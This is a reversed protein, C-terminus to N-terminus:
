MQGPTRLCRRLVGLVGERQEVALLARLGQGYVDDRQTMLAMKKTAGMASLVKYALWEAFGERVLANRLLPCNEGQWAHAYEHAMVQLMLIQPLGCQAYIVRKRGERVFLGFTRNTSAEESLGAQAVAAQLQTRDVLAFSTPVNLALGLEGQIISVARDFLSKAKDHDYVATQHCVGCIHRGDAIQQGGRGVPAGCVDCRPRDRFCTECYIERRGDLQLYRGSIPAGCSACFLQGPREDQQAKVPSRLAIGCYSCFRAGRRVARQCHPCARRGNEPCSEPCAQVTM